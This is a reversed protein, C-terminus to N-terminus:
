VGICLWTVKEEQLMTSILVILTHPSSVRDNEGGELIAAGFGSTKLAIVPKNKVLKFNLGSRLAAIRFSKPM